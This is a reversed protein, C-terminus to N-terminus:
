IQPMFKKKDEKLKGISVALSSLNKINKEDATKDDSLDFLFAAFHLDLIRIDELLTKIQLEDVSFKISDLKEVIKELREDISKLNDM